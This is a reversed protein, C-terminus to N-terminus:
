ESRVFADRLFDELALFFERQHRQQDHLAREVVVHQRFRLFFEDGGVLGGAALDVVMQELVGHVFPDRLRARLGVLRALGDLREDRPLQLSLGCPSAVRYAEKDNRPPRLGVFCDRKAQAHASPPSQKTPSHGGRLSLLDRSVDCIVCVRKLRRASMCPAAASPAAVRMGCRSAACGAARLPAGASGARPSSRMRPAVTSVMSGATGSRAAPSTCTRSPAITATAGFISAGAAWTMSPAPMIAMGPKTSVCKWRHFARKRTKM